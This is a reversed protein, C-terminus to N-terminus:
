GKKYKYTNNGINWEIYDINSFDFWEDITSLTLNGDTFEIYDVDFVIGMPEENSFLLLSEDAELLLTNNTEEFIAKEQEKTCGMLLILLGFVLIIKKM